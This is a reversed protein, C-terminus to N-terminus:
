DKSELEEPFFDRVGKDTQIEIKPGNDTEIVGLVEGEEGFTDSNEKYEETTRVLQGKKFGFMEQEEETQESPNNTNNEFNEFM